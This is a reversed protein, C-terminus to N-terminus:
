GGEIAQEVLTRAETELRIAEDRLTAVNVGVQGIRKRESPGLDPVLVQGIHRVDLHPISSGYARAKLQRLGYQSTLAIYLYGADTDNECRVRIADETVAGGVLRGFPFVVTGIIGSLQGSRPILLTKADVIYEEIGVQAKPLYYSPAPDGWMMASTGFFPVGQDPDDVAIRKFRTPEVVSQAIEAVSISQVVCERIRAVSQQHYDSHFFADFRGGLHSSLKTTVCYPTPELRRLPPLGALAELTAVSEHVKRTALTRKEAASLVLDHARKKVSPDLHPVPLDAIHQPGISQIISGYTGSVVLPVGFKSSLYAYLYGPPVKHPDAVVKMIHQSSWMGDMDPRAYVMRGITGSCSILIMGPSIRLFSLRNSYAEKRRLLPLHTLDAMLMAASGLFPVGHEASEVWARSFKPGNYIGGDHGATLSRLPEKPVSLKELLVKTEIAGALYPGSDLRRGEKQLWGSPVIKTKM